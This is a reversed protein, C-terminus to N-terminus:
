ILKRIEQYVKEPTIENICNKRRECSGRFCPLCSPIPNPMIPKGDGYFHVEYPSTAGFLGLIKKKLAIGLHMGLSDNSVILKCSNIWDMYKFLDTLTEKPQQDQRSVVIGGNKLIETLEDWNEAPWAKTPWKLGVISNLGVTYKEETKPQYGLVYEEGKWEEGVIEFLLEQATKKNSRKLEQNTSLSLIDHSKDYAEAEGTQSNFTFGYRNRRARIKDALACIGPIKELNIVVDFEETQLQSISIFDLVLLRNILHNHKLLPIAKEDTVWTIHNDKYLHLLPTTRLVDGFSVVRSNNRRDLVESYGTKIILVKNMM